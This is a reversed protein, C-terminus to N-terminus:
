NKSIWLGKLKFGVVVLFDLNEYQYLRDTMITMLDSEKHHIAPHPRRHGWWTVSATQWANKL